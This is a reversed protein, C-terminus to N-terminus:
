AMLLGRGAARRADAVQGGHYTFHQIIGSLCQAVTGFFDQAEEPAKSPKDLDDGSLSEVYKLTRARTEEFKELIEDFSPYRNVDAVATSGQGFIGKWEALPNAKGLIFEDLLEAESYTLHGFIWLPHNGGNPTPFTTPADKMDSILGLVWEKGMDLSVRIFDTTKMSQEKAILGGTLITNSYAM